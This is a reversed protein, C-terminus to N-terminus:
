LDWFTKCALFVWVFWFGVDLFIISNDTTATDENGM